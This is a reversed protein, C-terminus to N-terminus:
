YVNLLSYCLKFCIIIGKAVCQFKSIKTINQSKAISKAVGKQIKCYKKCYKPFVAIIKAICLIKCYNNCYKSIKCYTNYYM